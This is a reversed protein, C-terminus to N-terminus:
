SPGILSSVPCSSDVEKNTWASITSARSGSRPISLNMRSGCRSDTGTPGARMYVDNVVKKVLSKQSKKDKINVDPTSTAHQYFLMFNNVVIPVTLAIVMVGSMACLTGVVYGAETKPYMDGYGVTTMTVIAWWFSLPINKYTDKSDAYYMLCGFILIGMSIFVFTLLIEKLSVKMTYMLVMLGNFHQMMRFVRFVRIVQLATIIDLFSDKYKETPDILLIIEMVYFPLVSLIDIINLPRILFRLKGPSFLFRVIFELTFFAICLVNIYFFSSHPISMDESTEFQKQKAQDAEAENFASVMDVLGKRPRMLSQQTTPPVTANAPPAAPAPDGIDGKRMDITQNGGSSVSAHPPRGAGQGHKDLLFDKLSVKHYVAWDKDSMQIRFTSHSALVLSLISIIIM